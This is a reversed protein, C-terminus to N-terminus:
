AKCPPFLTAKAFKNSFDHQEALEISHIEGHIQKIESRKKKNLLAM